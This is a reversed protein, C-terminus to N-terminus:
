EWERSIGKVFGALTIAKKVRTITHALPYYLLLKEYTNQPVAGRFFKVFNVFLVKIPTRKEFFSVPQLGTDKSLFFEM